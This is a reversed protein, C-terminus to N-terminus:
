PACFLALILTLLLGPVRMVFSCVILCDTLIFLSTFLMILFLSTFLMILCFVIEVGMCGNVSMTVTFSALDEIDLPANNGSASTSGYRTIPPRMVAFRGLLECCFM